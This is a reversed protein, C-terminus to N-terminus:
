EDFDIYSFLPRDSDCFAIKAEDLSLAIVTQSEETNIVQAIGSALRELNIIGARFGETLADLVAYNFQEFIAAIVGADDERAVCSKFVVLQEDTIVADFPFHDFGDNFKGYIYFTTM